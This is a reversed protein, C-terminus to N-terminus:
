RRRLSGVTTTSRRSASGVSASSPAHSAAPGRPMRPWARVVPQRLSGVTLGGPATKPALVTRNAAARAAAPPSILAIKAILEEEEENLHSVLARRVDSSMGPDGEIQTLLPTHETKLHQMRQVLESLELAAKPESAM